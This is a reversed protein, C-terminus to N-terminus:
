HRGAECIPGDAEANIRFPQDDDGLPMHDACMLADNVTRVPLGSADEIVPMMIQRHSLALGPRQAVPRWKDFHRFGEAIQLRLYQALGAAVPLHDIDQRQHQMVIFLIHEASHFQCKLGPHRGLCM